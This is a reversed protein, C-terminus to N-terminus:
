FPGGGPGHGGGGPINGGGPNNGNGGAYSSLSVSQGGNTNANTYFLGEFCSDGNNVTVSSKLTPTSGGSVVLPSGASSPTKFAYIATGVTLEYWTNQSWSSAQYCSQSLSSGSELGGIAILTGGNVYLKYGAETNADLAVEPSSSGAAYVVGGNVYFNGNADLGDNKTALGCVYGGNIIFDGGSNIADDAASCSFVEGDDITIAGKAEIGEHAHANVIVKGGNFSLDGDFKIGKASVSNTSNNGWGGSNGYNNGTVNVSVTGGRFYGNGNGSIGKGGTGTSTISLDGDSMIFTGNIKIGAYGKYERDENDYYANSSVNITITPQGLIRLYDDVGIGSKGMATISLTGDGSIILQDESFLVAKEDEDDPTDTYTAGDTLSNTGNVVLFTRKNQINIAAGNPNTLTLDNLIVAQKRGSYLKFCGDTSNGSLEYQVYESSLNTITVDNGNIVATVSDSLGTIEADGDSSFRIDVVRDFITNAIYDDEQNVSAPDVSLINDKGCKTFFPLFLFGVLLYILSHRM